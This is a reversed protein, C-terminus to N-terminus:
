YDYYDYHDNNDYHDYYYHHDYSEYYDYCYQYYDYCYYCRSSKVINSIVMSVTNSTSTSGIANTTM